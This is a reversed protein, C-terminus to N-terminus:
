AWAHPPTPNPPVRRTCRRRSTCTPGSTSCACCCATARAPPALRATAARCREHGRCPFAPHNGPAAGPMTYICPCDVGALKCAGQLPMVRMVPWPLACATAGLGQCTPEAGVQGQGEEQIDTAMFVLDEGEPLLPPAERAPLAAQPPPHRCPCPCAVAPLLYHRRMCLFGWKQTPHLTTNLLPQTQLCNHPPSQGAAVETCWTAAFVTTGGRRRSRCCRLVGTGCGKLRLQKM